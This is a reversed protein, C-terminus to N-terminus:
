STASSHVLVDVHYIGGKDKIEQYAAMTVNREALNKFSRVTNVIVSM